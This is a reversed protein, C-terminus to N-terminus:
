KNSIAVRRGSKLVSILESSYENMIGVPLDKLIPHNEPGQQANIVAGLPCLNPGVQLKLVTEAM